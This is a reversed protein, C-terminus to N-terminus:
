FPLHILDEPTDIDFHGQPFSIKGVQERFSNVIKKAGASGELKLLESYFSEHFLVPTGLTNQYESAIIPKDSKLYEKILSSLIESQVYPQDCVMLIAIPRTQPSEMLTKIGLRISSAMGEQWELNYLIQVPLDQIEKQILEQYAGLIVLVQDSVKLAEQTFFRILSEEQKKLLQKPRGLRSSNGAALLIISAHTESTETPKQM